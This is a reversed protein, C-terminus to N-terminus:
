GPGEFYGAGRCYGASSFLHQGKIGTEQADFVNAVLPPLSVHGDFFGFAELLTVANIPSAVGSVAAHNGFRTLVRDRNGPVITV